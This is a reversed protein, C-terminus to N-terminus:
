LHGVKVVAQADVIAFVIDLTNNDNYLRSKDISLSAMLLQKPEKLIVRTM